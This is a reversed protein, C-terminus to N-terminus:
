LVTTTRLGVSVCLEGVYEPLNWLNNYGLCFNPQDHILGIHESLAAQVHETAQIPKYEM